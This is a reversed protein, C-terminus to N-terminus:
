EWPHGIARSRLLAAHHADSLSLDLLQRLLQIARIKHRAAIAADVPKLADQSSKGLMEQLQERSRIESKENM